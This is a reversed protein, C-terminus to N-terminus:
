GTDLTFLILLLSKGKDVTGAKEQNKQFRVLADVTATNFDSEVVTVKLNNATICEVASQSGEGSSQPPNASAM